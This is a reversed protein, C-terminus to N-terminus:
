GGGASLGFNSGATPQKLRHVLDLCQVLCGGLGGGTDNCLLGQHAANAHDHHGSDGAENHLRSRGRAWWYTVVADEIGRPLRGFIASIILM